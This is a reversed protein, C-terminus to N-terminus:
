VRERCSARGIEMTTHYSDTVADYNKRVRTNHCEACMSNWNMGRGTWHGFEGPNRIDDGYVYFWQNSKPDYSAEQVQYRGGPFPTLFQVLPLYGIVREVRFPQLNSELGFTVVQFQGDNTRVTTTEVGHQFIRPPAFALGDTEPRLPREAVGHTSQSWRLYEVPHCGRCSEPGTYAAYDGAPNATAICALLLCVPLIVWVPWYAQPPKRQM